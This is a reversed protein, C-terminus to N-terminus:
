FFLANKNKIKEKIKITSPHKEYKKIVKLVPNSTNLNETIEVLNGDIKLNQTINSFFTNFSEALEHNNTITRNNDKLILTEKCVTKESFLPGITQWFKRNDSVIKNNLQKFYGRKTKRLLSVCLNRQRNCLHKSDNTRM